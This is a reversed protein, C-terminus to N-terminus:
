PHPRASSAGSTSRSPGRPHGWRRLPRRRPSPSPGHCARRSRRAARARRSTPSLRRRRAPRAARQGASAARRSSRYRRVAVVLHPHCENRQQVAARRGSYRWRSGRAPERDRGRRGHRREAWLHEGVLLRVRLQLRQGQTRQWLGFVRRLQFEDLGRVPQRRLDLLHRREYRHRGGGVRDGRQRRVDVAHGGHAGSHGDRANAARHQERGDGAEADRHWRHSQDRGPEAPHHVARHEGVVDVGTLTLAGGFQSVGAGHNIGNIHGGTITLNAISVTGSDVEVVGFDLASPDRVVTAKNGVISVSSKIVLGSAASDHGGSQAATLTYTCGAALTITGGGGTNASAVAAQLGAGGGGSGSCPVSLTVTAAAPPAVAAVAFASAALAVLSTGVRGPLSHSM